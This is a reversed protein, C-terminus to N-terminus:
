KFRNPRLRQDHGGCTNESTLMALGDERHTLVPPTKELKGKLGDDEYEPCLSACNRTDERNETMLTLCTVGLRLGTGESM